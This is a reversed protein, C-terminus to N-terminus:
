LGAIQNLLGYAGYQILYPLAYQPYKQAARESLIQYHTSAGPGSLEAKASAGLSAVYARALDEIERLYSIQESVASQLDAPEGRGGYVTTAPYQSLEDLAARWAPLTPVARGSVIGGELWAHTRHHVLDGVFLAQAAPLYAVTQTSSVGSHLLERLTLRHGSRLPLVLEGVFTQDIRAEAPYSADTFLKAVNVFYNKKYAHVTPIAAATAQSAIAQAGIAQFASVGNFKDPNPHTVVVHTIPSRTSAQIQAIAARALAPTFQADFVIVERGTDVFFSHTDFGTSDSTFTAVSLPALNEEGAGEEAPACAAPLWAVFVALWLCSLLRRRTSIVAASSSSSVPAAIHVLRSM